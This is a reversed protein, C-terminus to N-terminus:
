YSFFSEVYSNIVFLCDFFLFIIQLYIVFLFNFFYFYNVKILMKDLIDVIEPDFHRHLPIVGISPSHIANVLESLSDYPFPDDLQILQYM